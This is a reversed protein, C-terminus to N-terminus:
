VGLAKKALLTKVPDNQLIDAMRALEKETLRSAMVSIAKMKSAAEQQSSASLHIQYTFKTM